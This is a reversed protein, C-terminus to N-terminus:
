ESDRAPAYLLIYERDAPIEVNQSYQPPEISSFHQEILNIIRMDGPDVFFAYNMNHPMWEFLSEDVNASDYSQFAYKGRAFYDMVAVAVNRDLDPNAIVVITTAEPYASDIVRLVADVGDRHGKTQRFQTNFLRLHPGFYYGIMVVGVIAAAALALASVRRGVPKEGGFLLPLTYCLGVAICIALAPTVEVYRPAQWQDQLLSNGLATGLLWIPIVLSPSRWRWLLYFVGLLLLPVFITLVFPQEGGFYQPILEARNVYMLFPNSVRRLLEDIEQQSLGDQLLGSFYEGSM